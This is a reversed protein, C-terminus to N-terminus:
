VVARQYGLAAGNRPGTSQEGRPQGKDVYDNIVDLLLPPLAAGNPSGYLWLVVASAMDAEETGPKAGSSAQDVLMALQLRSLEAVELWQDLQQEFALGVPESGPMSVQMRLLFRNRDM